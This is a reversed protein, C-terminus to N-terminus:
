ASPSSCGACTRPRRPRRRAPAAELVVRRAPGPLAADLGAPAGRGHAARGREEPEGGRHRGPGFLKQQEVRGLDVTGTLESAALAYDKTTLLWLPRLGNRDLHAVAEDGDCAVVAAPGDCAGLFVSMAEHFASLRDSAAAMSPAEPLLALIAQPLSLGGTLLAIVMDDLNATDSGGGCIISRVREGIKGLRPHREVLLQVLDPGIAEMWAVNGKITSIEGNHGLAWFPQARRWATTTNTSYRSHFLM